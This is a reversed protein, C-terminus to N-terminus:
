KAICVARRLPKPIAWTFPLIKATFSASDCSSRPGTQFPAFDRPLLATAWLNANQTQTKRKTHSIFSQAGILHVNVEQGRRLPNVLSFVPPIIAPAPSSATTITPVYLKALQYRGNRQPEKLWRHLVNANM